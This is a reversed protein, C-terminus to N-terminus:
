KGKARCTCRMIAKLGVRELGIDHDPHPCHADDMHLWSLVRVSDRCAPRNRPWAIALAALAAVGVIAVWMLLRNPM